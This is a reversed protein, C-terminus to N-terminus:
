IETGQAFNKRHTHETGKHIKLDPIRKRLQISNLRKNKIEM